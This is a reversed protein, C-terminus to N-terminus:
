GKSEGRSEVTVVPVAKIARKRAAAVDGAINVQVNIAQYNDRYKHPRMGKLLFIMLLDSRVRRHGVLKGHQYVPDDHGVSARKWAERELVDAANGRAREFAESYIKDGLWNNHTKRCVGAEQAAQLVNGYKGYALEPPLVFISEGGQRMTELALTFGKHNATVDMEAPVGRDDSSFIKKRSKAM